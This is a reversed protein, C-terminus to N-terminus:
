SEFANAKVFDSLKREDRSGTISDAEDKLSEVKNEINMEKVKQEKIEEFVPKEREQVKMLM